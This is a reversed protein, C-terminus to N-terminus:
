EIKVIYFLQEKSSYSCRVTWDALIEYKEDWEKAREISTCLRLNEMDLVDNPNYQFFGGNFNKRAAHNPNITVYNWLEPTEMKTILLAGGYSKGKNPYIQYIYEWKKVAQIQIRFFVNNPDKIFACDRYICVRNSKVPDKPIDKIYDALISSLQDTSGFYLLFNQYYGEPLKEKDIVTLTRRPYEGYENKYMSIAAAINMLDAQRKLDRTKSIYNNLRPLLASALVWIIVVVILMEVLTFGSKRM